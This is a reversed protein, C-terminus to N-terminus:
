APRTRSFMLRLNRGKMVTVLIEIQVSTIQPNSRLQEPVARLREVQAALEGEKGACVKLGSEERCDANACRSQTIDYIERRSINPVDITTFPVSRGCKGCRFQVGLIEDSIQVRELAVWQGTLPRM